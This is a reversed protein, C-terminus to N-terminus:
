EEEEFAIDCGLFRRNTELCVDLVVFSGAAPDLVVDGEETTATILLKILEKPKQHTHKKNIIKECWVDPINHLRWTKKAIIPEKQLVVLYESKRRSRYGMGIKQKDWTVMDVVSLHNGKAWERFTGEMLIFKDVWLFLYGSPKLKRSILFIFNAIDDESMQTLESREKQRAGENGYRLKNLIGRYQPDFFCIRVSEDPTENLLVMGDERHKQNYELM